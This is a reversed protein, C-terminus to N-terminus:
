PAFMIPCEYVQNENLTGYPQYTLFQSFERELRELEEDDMQPEEEHDSEDEGHIEDEGYISTSATDDDSSDDYVLPRTAQPAVVGEADISQQFSSSPEVPSISPVSDEHTNEADDENEGYVSYCLPPIAQVYQCSMDLLQVLIVVVGLLAIFYLTAFISVVYSVHINQMACSMYSAIFM